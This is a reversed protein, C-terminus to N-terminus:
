DRCEGEADLQELLALADCRTRNAFIMAAVNHEACTSDRLDAALDAVLRLHERVSM